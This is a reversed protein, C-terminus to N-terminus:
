WVPLTAFSPSAADLGIQIGGAEIWAHATVGGQLTRAVGIRLRSEMGRRALMVHAACARPLCTTVREPLRAAATDIAVAVDATKLIHPGAKAPGDAQRMRRMVLGPSLRWAVAFVPMLVWAEVYLTVIRLQRDSRRM